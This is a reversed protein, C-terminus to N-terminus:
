LRNPMAAAPCASRRRESVKAGRGVAGALAGGGIGIAGGVIMVARAWKMARWAGGFSYRM